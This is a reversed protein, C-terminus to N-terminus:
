LDSILLRNKFIYAKNALRCKHKEQDLQFSNKDYLNNWKSILCVFIFKVNLVTIISIIFDM